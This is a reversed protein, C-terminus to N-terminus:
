SHIDWTHELADNERWPCSGLVMIHKDSVQGPVSLTVGWWLPNNFSGWPKQQTNSMVSCAEPIQLM